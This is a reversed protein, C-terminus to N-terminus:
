KKIGLLESIKEKDFGVVIQGDIDMVPVRMQGLNEIMERAAEKDKAVDIEKFDINHEKLFFRLTLCYPCTPTTFIRVEPM